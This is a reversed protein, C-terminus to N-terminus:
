LSKLINRPTELARFGSIDRLGYDKRLGYVKDFGGMKGLRYVKERKVIRGLHFDHPIM